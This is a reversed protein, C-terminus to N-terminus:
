CGQNGKLVPYRCWVLKYNWVEGTKCTWKSMEDMSNMFLDVNWIHHSVTGANSGVFIIAVSQLIGPCSFVSSIKCHLRM